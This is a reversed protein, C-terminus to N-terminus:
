PHHENPDMETQPEILLRWKNCERAVSQQETVQMWHSPCDFTQIKANTRVLWESALNTRPNSPKAANLWSRIGQMSGQRQKPSTRSQHDRM